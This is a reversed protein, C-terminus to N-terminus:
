ESDEQQNETTTSEKWGLIKWRDNEEKVLVYSRAVKPYKNGQRVTYVADVLACEQGEVTDYEVQSVESLVYNTIKDNAEYQEMEEKLKAVQKEQTNNADTVLAQAYMKRMQAVMNELDENELRENYVCSTMKSFMQVVDRPSHPYENDLDQTLLQQKETLTKNRKDRATKESLYAYYGIVLICMIAVVIVVKVTKKNEQMSDGRFIKRNSFKRLVIYCVNNM